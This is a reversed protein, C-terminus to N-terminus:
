VGSALHGIRRRGVTDALGLLPLLNVDAFMGSTSLYTM